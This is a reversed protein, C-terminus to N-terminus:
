GKLANYVAVFANLRARNEILDRGLQTSTDRANLRVRRSTVNLLRSVAILAVLFVFALGAFVCTLVVFNSGDKVSLILTANHIALGTFVGFVVALAFFAILAVNRDKKFKVAREAKKEENEKDLAMVKASLEDINKELGERALAFLEEKRQPSTYKQISSAGDAVMGIQSYDTFNQTYAAAKLAYIEGNEGDEEEAKELYDLATAYKGAACDETAKQLLEAVRQEKEAKEREIRERKAALQEPTMVAAEEDDTDEELVDFMVEEVQEEGDIEEGGVILEEEGDANIKIRYKKDKDTDILREEAM